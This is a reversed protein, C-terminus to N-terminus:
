ETKKPGLIFKTPKYGEPYRNSQGALSSNIDRDLAMWYPPTGSGVWTSDPVHAVVVGNPYLSPNNSYLQPHENREDQAKQKAEKAIAGKTGVRGTPSLKGAALAENALEVYKKMQAVQADTAWAPPYFTVPGENPKTDTSTSTGPPIGNGANGGAPQAAPATNPARLHQAKAQNYQQTWGATAVPAPVPNVGAVHWVGRNNQYYRIFSPTLQTKQPDVQFNTALTSAQEKSLNGNRVDTALQAQYVGESVSSMRVHGPPGMFLQAALVAVSGATYAQAAQAGLSSGQSGAVTTRNGGILTDKTGPSSFTVGM